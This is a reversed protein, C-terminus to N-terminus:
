MYLSKPNWHTLFEPVECAPLPKAIAYGQGYGCGLAKLFMLQEKTEIGEALSQMKMNHALGVIAKAVVCADADHPLDRVFSQDIKLIDLPM